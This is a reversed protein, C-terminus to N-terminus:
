SLTGGVMLGIHRWWLLLREFDWLSSIDYAVIIALLSPTTVSAPSILRWSSFGTSIAPGLMPFLRAMIITCVAAAVLNLM